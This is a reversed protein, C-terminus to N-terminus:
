NRFWNAVDLQRYTHVFAIGEPYDGVDVRRIERLNKLDIVAVTREHQNTVFVRNRDPDHAIAHPFQGIAVSYAVRMFRLEIVTITSSQVNAVFALNGDASITVGFPALGVTITALLKRTAVDFLM